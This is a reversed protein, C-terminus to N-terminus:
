IRVGSPSRAAPGTKRAVAKLLRWATWKSMALIEGFARRDIWEATLSRLIDIAEALRHAYLPAAPMLTQFRPSLPIFAPHLELRSGKWLTRVITAFAL